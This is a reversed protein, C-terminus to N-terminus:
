KLKEYAPYGFKSIYDAIAEPTKLDARSTVTGTSNGGKNETSGAGGKVDGNVLYPRAQAWGEYFEKLTMPKLESNQKIIGGEKVVWDNVDNDFEIQADTLALVDEITYFNAADSAARRMAVEKRIRYADKLASEKEQKMKEAASVAAATKAKEAELLPKMQAEIAAQMEESTLTKGKSGNGKDAGSTASKLDDIQKQLEAEKTSLQTDFQKQLNAQQRQLREQVIENVRQQQQENFTVTDNGTKNLNDTGENDM